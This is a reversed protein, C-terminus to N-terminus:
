NRSQEAERMLRQRYSNLHLKIRVAVTMAAMVPSSATKGSSIGSPAVTM